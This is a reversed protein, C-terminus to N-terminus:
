RVEECPGCYDACHNDLHNGAGQASLTLTQANAENGPPVHCITHKEGSQTTFAFAILVVGAAGLLLFYKKM